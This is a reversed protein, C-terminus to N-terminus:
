GLVQSAPFQQQRHSRSLPTLTQERGRTRLGSGSTDGGAWLVISKGYCVIAARAGRYYIRSM